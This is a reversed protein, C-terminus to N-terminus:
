LLGWIIVRRLVYRPARATRQDLPLFSVWGPGPYVCQELPFRDFPPKSSVTFCGAKLAFPADLELLNDGKQLMIFSAADSFPLAFNFPRRTDTIMGAKLAASCM